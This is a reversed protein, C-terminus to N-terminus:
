LEDHAYPIEESGSDGADAYLATTIPNVVARVEALRDYIEESTAAGGHGDIWTVATALTERLTQKDREGLKGGLGNTDETQSKLGFVYSSLENLADIRLRAAADEAAFAEAEAVMRDVEDPSLRGRENQIVIEQTRGSIIPTLQHVAKTARHVCTAKDAARVTLIGNADIEFTVEIQPVGRPAPPIGTLEFAGLLNNDKTMAREGEYVQIRVSPQNDAGTSFSLLLSRVV